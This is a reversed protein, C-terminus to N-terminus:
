PVMRVMFTIFDWVFIKELILIMILKSPRTPTVPPTYFWDNHDYNSGKSRTLYALFSQRYLLKTSFTSLPCLERERERERLMIGILSGVTNTGM